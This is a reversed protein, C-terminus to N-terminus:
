LFKNAFLGLSLLRGHACDNQKVCVMKSENRDIIVSIIIFVIYVNHTCMKETSNFTNIGIFM